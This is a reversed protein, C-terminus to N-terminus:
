RWERRVLTLAQPGLPHAPGLSPPALPSAVATGPLVVLHRRSREPRGPLRLRRPAGARCRSRGRGRSCKSRREGPAGEPLRLRGVGLSGPSDRADLREWQQVRAGAGLHLLPCFVHGM